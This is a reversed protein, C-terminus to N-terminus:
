PRPALFRDLTASEDEGTVWRFADFLESGDALPWTTPDWMVEVDFEDGMQRCAVLLAGTPLAFPVFDEPYLREVSLGEWGRGAEPKPAVSFGCGTVLNLPRGREEAMRSLHKGLEWLDVERHGMVDVVLRRVRGRFEGLREGAGLRFPLYALIALNAVLDQEQPTVRNSLPVSLIGEPVGSLRAMLLAQAALLAMFPSWRSRRCAELCAAAEPGSWTLGARISPVKPGRPPGAPLPDLLDVWYGLSRRLEAPDKPRRGLHAVFRGASATPDQGGYAAALRGELVDFGIGDVALHDITLALLHIDPDLRVLQVGFPGAGELDLPAAAARGLWNLGWEFREPESGGTPAVADVALDGRDPFSQEWRGSAGLLRLRLSENGAVVGRLAALLRRTDLAGRLRYVRQLPVGKDPNERAAAIWRQGLTLPYRPELGDRGAETM